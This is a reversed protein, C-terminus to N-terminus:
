QIQYLKKWIFPVQGKYAYIEKYDGNDTNVFLGYFGHEEQLRIYEPGGANYLTHYVDYDNDILTLDDRNQIDEITGIQKM